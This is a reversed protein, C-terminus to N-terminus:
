SKISQYACAAVWSCKDESLDALRYSHLESDNAMIIKVEKELGVTVAFSDLPYTIGNGVAKVIAEKRTWIQYFGITQQHKPLSSLAEQEVDSFHYKAVLGMDPIPIPKEIDIGIVGSMTFAYIVYEGSHSMNFVLPIRAQSMKIFPKGYLNHRYNISEPKVELYAALLRRLIGRRIIFRDALHGLYFKSARQREDDSLMSWLNSVQLNAIDM